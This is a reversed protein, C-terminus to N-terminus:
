VGREAIWAELRYGLASLGLTDYVGSLGSSGQVAIFVAGLVIFMAGGLASTTHLQWTGLRIPRGRLWRRAGLDLRDWASALVFLPSAIGLCFTLLLAIGLLPQGPTLTLSLVSGLLPGSCFGGIGYMLGLGYAGAASSGAPLRALLGGPVLGFGGGGLQLMGFGILLLGAALVAMPRYEILVTAALSLGLGFPVFVTCLGALFVLTRSVLHSRGALAYAGFAPLLLASCPALLLLVGGLFAGLFSAALV